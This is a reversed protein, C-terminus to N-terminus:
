VVSYVVSANGTYASIKTIVALQLASFWNAVEGTGSGTEADVEAKTITISARDIESATVTDIVRLTVSFSTIEEYYIPECIIDCGDFQKQSGDIIVFSSVSTNIM